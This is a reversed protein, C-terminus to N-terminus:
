EMRARFRTNVTILPLFLGFWVLMPRLPHTPIPASPHYLLSARYLLHSNTNSNSDDYSLPTPISCHSYSPVAPAVYPLPPAQLIPSRQFSAPIVYPLLNPLLVRVPCILGVLPIVTASTSDFCYLPSGLAIMRKKTPFFTSIKRLNIVL